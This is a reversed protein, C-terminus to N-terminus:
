PQDRRPVGSARYLEGCISCGHLAMVSGLDVVGGQADLVLQWVEDQSEADLDRFEEVVGRDFVALARELATVSDRFSFEAERIEELYDRVVPSIGAGPDLFGSGLQAPGEMLYRMYEVQETLWGREWETVETTHLVSRAVIWAQLVDWFYTGYREFLEIEENTLVSKQRPDDLPALAVRPSIPVPPAVITKMAEGVPDKTAVLSTDVAALTALVAEEVRGEFDGSPSGSGSARRGSNEGGGSASSVSGAESGGDPGGGDGAGEAAEDDFVMVGDEGVVVGAVDAEVTEGGGGGVVAVGLIGLLFVGGVVSGAMLVKMKWTGEVWMDQLRVPISRLGSLM